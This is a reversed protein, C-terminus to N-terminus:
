LKALQQVYHSPAVGVVKKFMRSFLLADKYGVSRATETVSLATSRLLEKAKNMRYHLLYQQPPMGLAERFLTAVYKRDLGLYDSM